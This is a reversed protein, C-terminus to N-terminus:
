RLSAKRSIKCSGQLDSAATPRLPTTHQCQEGQQSGVIVSSHYPVRPVPPPVLLQPDPEGFVLM